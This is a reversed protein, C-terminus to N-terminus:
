AQLSFAFIPTEDTVSIPSAFFSMHSSLEYQVTEDQLEGGASDTDERVEYIHTGMSVGDFPSIATGYTQLRTSIGARNEAELYPLAGISGEPVAIWVGTGYTGSLGSFKTELGISRVFTINDKQFSLNTANGSGQFIQFEFLDYATSDCYLTIRSKYHNEELITKTKQLLVDVSTSPFNYVDDAGSFTGGGGTSANVGSKEDFLFDQAKDELNELIDLYANEYSSVLAEQRSVTNNGFMKLSDSFSVSATSWQPSYVSSEVLSGTHTASIATAVTRKVRNMLSLELSRSPSTRLEMYNPVMLPTGKLVELYTNASPMRMENSAYAGQLKAQAVKLNTAVISM